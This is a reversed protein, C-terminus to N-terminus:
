GLVWGLETFNFVGGVPKWDDDSQEMRVMYRGNEIWGREFFLLFLLLWLKGFM